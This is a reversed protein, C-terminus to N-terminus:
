APKAELKKKKLKIQERAKSFEPEFKALKNVLGTLIYGNATQNKKGRFREVRRIFGGNELATLHRQVQRPSMGVRNALTDKSPHPADNADWWFDALQMLINFQEASLGLRGQAQLLLSPVTCFGFDIVAKGWKDRPAKRPKKALAPFAIISDDTASTPKTAKPAM